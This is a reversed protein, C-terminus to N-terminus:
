VASLGGQIRHEAYRVSGRRRDVSKRNAVPRHRPGAAGTRVIAATNVWEYRTFPTLSYDKYAWANRWAAQVYGGYFSKPVPTPQGVFTLNLAETDSITGRSYLAAFDFPAPQWRAHAEWLTIRANAAPFDVRRTGGQRHVRDGSNAM